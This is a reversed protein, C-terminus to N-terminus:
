AFSFGSFGPNTFGFTSGEGPSVDLLQGTKRTIGQAVNTAINLKTDQANQRITDAGLGRQVQGATGLNLLSALSAPAQGNWVFAGKDALKQRRARVSEETGEKSSFSLPAAQNTSSTTTAPSKGGGM